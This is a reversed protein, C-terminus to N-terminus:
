LSFHQFEQYIFEPKHYVISIIDYNYCLCPKYSRGMYQFIHKTPM